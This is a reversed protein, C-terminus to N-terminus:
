SMNLMGGSTGLNPMGKGSNDDRGGSSGDSSHSRPPRYHVDAYYDRWYERTREEQGQLCVCTACGGCYRCGM